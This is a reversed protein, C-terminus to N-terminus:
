LHLTVTGRLRHTPRRDIMKGEAAAARLRAVAVMMLRWVGLSLSGRSPATFIHLYVNRRCSALVWTKGCIMRAQAAMM